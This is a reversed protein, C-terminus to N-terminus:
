PTRVEGKASMRTMIVPVVFLTVATPAILGAGVYISTWMVSLNWSLALVAIGITLVFTTEMVAPGANRIVDADVRTEYRRYLLYYMVDDLSVGLVVALGVSTAIQMPQGSLGVLGTYVLVSCLPPLLAVLALRMRRLVVWAAVFVVPVFLVVGVIQGRAFYENMKRIRPATGAILRSGNFGSENIIEAIRREMLRILASFDRNEEVAVPRVLIRTASYAVDVFAGINFAGEAATLLELSEGIQIATEPPGANYWDVIDTYSCVSAVGDLSRLQHTVLRIKNYTDISVLGYESDTDLHVEVVSGASYRSEFYEAAARPRSGVRLEDIWRSSVYVRAVGVGVIACLVLLGAALGGSMRLKLKTFFSPRYPASDAIGAYIPALYVLAAVIAFVVGAASIMGITRIAPVRSVVLSMFAILTTIGAMLVIQSAHRLNEQFPRDPYSCHYRHVHIGYSTALALVIIPTVITETRLEIDFLVFLSMTWVASAVTTWWLALAPAFQRTVILELVFVVVLALPILTRTDRINNKLAYLKFISSGFVHHEPIGVSEAHRLVAEAFAPGDVNEAPFLTVAAASLDSATTFEALFRNRDLFSRLSRIDEPLIERDPSVIKEAELRGNTWRVRTLTTLSLVDSVEPLRLASQTIEGVRELAETSFINPHAISLVIYDTSLFAKESEEIRNFYADDPPTFEPSPDFELQVLSIGAVVTLLSLLLVPVLRSPKVQMATSRIIPM